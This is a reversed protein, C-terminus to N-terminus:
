PAIKMVGPSCINKPTSTGDGLAGGFVGWLLALVVKGVLAM